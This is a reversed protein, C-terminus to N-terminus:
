DPELVGSLAGLQEAAARAVRPKVGIEALLEAAALMEERRRGAHRLSGEVLREVLAEDAEKLTQAVNAKLEAELGLRRAAELAEMVAAAMGKFFVSRLLKRTAADGPAEGVVEVVAGLPELRERYAFAGSGSALSPTKLGKGPVPSMLAVDAFLAGTPALIAALSRKLKPSATNLDAYVAGLSLVPAVKEAVELAVRAWNVSLVVQAGHAAERESQARHIGPVNKEPIPDYGVVEAGAQVLDWAIASGAEGLGLVAMRLRAM